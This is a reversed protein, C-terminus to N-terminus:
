RDEPRLMFSTVKFFENNFDPMRSIDSFEEQIKHLLKRINELDGLFIEEDELWFWVDWLKRVSEGAIKGQEREESNQEFCEM